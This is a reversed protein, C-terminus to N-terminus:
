ANLFFLNGNIGIKFWCRRKLRRRRKRRTRAARRMERTRLSMTVETCSLSMIGACKCYLHPIKFHFIGSTVMPKLVLDHEDMVVPHNPPVGMLLFGGVYFTHNFTPTHRVQWACWNVAWTKAPPISRATNRHFKLLASRDLVLFLIRKQFNVDLSFKLNRLMESSSVNFCTLRLGSQIKWCRWTGASDFVSKSGRMTPLYDGGRCRSGWHGGKIVADIATSSLKLRQETTLEKHHFRPYTPHFVCPLIPIIWTQHHNKHNAHIKSPIQENMNSRQKWQKKSLVMSRAEKLRVLAGSVTLLQGSRTKVPDAGGLFRRWGWGLVRGPTPPHHLTHSSKM